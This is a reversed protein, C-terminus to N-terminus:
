PDSVRLAGKRIDADGAVVPFDGVVLNINNGRARGSGGCHAGDSRVAAYQLPIGLSVRPPQRGGRVGSGVGLYVPIYKGDFEQVFVRRDQQRAPAGTVEGDLVNAITAIIRPVYRLPQSGRDGM